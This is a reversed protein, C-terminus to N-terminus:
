RLVDDLRALEDDAATNVSIDKLLLIGATPRLLLGHSRRDGLLWRLLHLLLVVVLLMM